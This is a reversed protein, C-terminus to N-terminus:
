KPHRYMNVFKRRQRQVILEDYIAFRENAGVAESYLALIKKATLSRNLCRVVHLDKFFIWLLPFKNRGRLPPNNIRYALSDWFDPKGAMSREWLHNQFYPLLSRDIQIAEVMANDDHAEIARSILDFISEGHTALSLDNYFNVQFTLWFNQQEQREPETLGEVDIDKLAGKTFELGPIFREGADGLVASSFDQCFENLWATIREPTPEPGIADSFAKNASDIEDQYAEVFRRQGDKWYLEAWHTVGLKRFYVLVSAPYPLWGGHQEMEEFLTVYMNLKAIFLRAVVELDPRIAPVLATLPPM